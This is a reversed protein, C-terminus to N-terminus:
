LLIVHGVGVCSLPGCLGYWCTSPEKVIWFICFGKSSCRRYLIDYSTTSSFYLYWVQYIMRTSHHQASKERMKCCYNKPTSVVVVIIVRPFLGFCMRNLLLQLPYHTTSGKEPYLGLSVFSLCLSTPLPVFFFFGTHGEKQTQGGAVSQLEPSLYRSTGSFFQVVCVCACEVTWFGQAPCASFSLSLSIMRWCRQCWHRSWRNPEHEIKSTTDASSAGPARHISSYIVFTRVERSSSHRLKFRPREFPESSMGSESGRRSEDSQM